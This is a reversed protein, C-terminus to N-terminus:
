NKNTVSIIYRIDLFFDMIYLVICCLVYWEDALVITTFVAPNRVESSSTTRYSIFDGWVDDSRACHVVGCKSVAYVHQCFSSLKDDLQEIAQM